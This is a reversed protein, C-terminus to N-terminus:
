VTGSVQALREPSYYALRKVNMMHTYTVNDTTSNHGFTGCGLTLSPILNTTLGVVGHAGPSNVLIRSVPMAVGFRSAITEDQTHIIATHGTGDIQLLAQCLAFGADLDPARFLSLVPTMKERAFPNQPSVDDDPIVILRIDYPRKISCLDAIESAQKGIITEKFINMNADVACAKFQEIEEPRLVAAQNKELLEVFADYVDDVAILNHESGCILGNDFSKSQIISEAAHSLDADGAILTPANGSGVGIAPNGSSYAAKVVNPGGTALVLGIKKHSMFTVVQKRTNRERIWQIIHKPADHQALVKEIVEGVQNCATLSKRNPSLILANRAKLAILTKFIFTSTPNTVPVLGFVIGIPSAIDVIRRVEAQDTNMAGYGTKGVLTQYVGMSAIQNKLTKDQVNGIGTDEVAVRALSEAQTAVATALDYLLADIRDESWSLFAKQAEEAQAIMKEVTSDSRSSVINDLRQTTSRLKISAARGLAAVLDLGIRPFDESIQKFADTSIRRATVDSHAFASASRPLNDLLSLEGLISGAEIFALIDDRDDPDSSTNETEIRILGSDIIYCGDPEDGVMFIATDRPFHLTEIYRELVVLQIESLLNLPEPYLTKM